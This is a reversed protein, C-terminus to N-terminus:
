QINRPEVIIFPYAACESMMKILKEYVHTVHHRAM